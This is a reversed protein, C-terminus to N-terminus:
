QPLKVKNIRRTNHKLPELMKQHQPAECDLDIVGTTLLYHNKIDNMSEVGPRSTIILQKTLPCVVEHQVYVILEKDTIEVDYGSVVYWGKILEEKAQKNILRTFPKKGRAKFEVGIHMAIQGETLSLM